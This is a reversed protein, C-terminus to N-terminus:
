PRTRARKSVPDTTTRRSPALVAADLAQLKYRPIRACPQMGTHADLTSRSAYIKVARKSKWRGEVSIQEWSAKENRLDVALGGRFSHPTVRAVVREITDQDAMSAAATYHSGYVLLLAKRMWRQRSERSPIVSPVPEFIYDDGHMGAVHWQLLTSATIDWVNVRDKPRYMQCRWHPRSPFRLTSPPKGPYRQWDTVLQASGDALWTIDKVRFRKHVFHGFRLAATHQMACMVLHHRNARSLALFNGRFYAQFTRLMATIVANGVPMSGGTSGSAEKASYELQLQRIMRKVQKYLLTPQEAKQLPLLHGHSVGAHALKSLHSALTTPKCTTARWQMYQWLIGVEWPEHEGPVYGLRQYAFDYYKRWEASYTARSDETLGPPLEFADCSDDM